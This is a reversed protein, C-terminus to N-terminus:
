SPYLSAERDIGEHFYELFRLKAEEQALGFHSKWADWRARGEFDVGGKEAWM